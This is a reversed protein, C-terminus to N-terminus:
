AAMRSPLRSVAVIKATERLYEVDLTADATDRSLKLLREDGAALAEKEPATLDALHDELWERANLMLFADGCEPDWYEIHGLYGRLLRLSESRSISTMSKIGWDGNIIPSLRAARSSRTSRKSVGM